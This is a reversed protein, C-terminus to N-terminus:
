QTARRQLRELNEKGKPNGAKGARDYYEKAKAVDGSSEHLVGLNNLVRPHNEDLSLAREYWQKAEDRRGRLYLFWGYTNYLGPDKIGNKEAIEVTQKWGQEAREDDGKWGRFDLALARNFSATYYDPKISLAKDFRSVARAYDGRRANEVAENNEHAAQKPINDQWKDNVTQGESSAAEAFSSFVICAVVIRRTSFRCSSRLM